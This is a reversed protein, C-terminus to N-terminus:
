IEGVHGEITKGVGGGHHWQGQFPWNHSSSVELWSISLKCCPRFYIKNVEIWGCILLLRITPTVDFQTQVHLNACRTVM